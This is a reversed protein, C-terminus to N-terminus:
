ILNHFFHTAAILCLCKQFLVVSESVTKFPFCRKETCFLYLASWFQAFILFDFFHRRLLFFSSSSSSLNKKIFTLYSHPFSNVCLRIARPSFRFTNTRKCVSSVSFNTFIKMMRSLNVLKTPKIFFSM